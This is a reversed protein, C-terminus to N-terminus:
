QWTIIGRSFCFVRFFLHHSFLSVVKQINPNQKAGCSPDLSHFHTNLISLFLLINTFASAFINNVKSIVMPLSRPLLFFIWIGSSPLRRHFGSAYCILDDPMQFPQRWATARRGCLKVGSQRYLQATWTREADGFMSLFLSVFFVFIINLTVLRTVRAARSPLPRTFKLFRLESPASAAAPASAERPTGFVILALAGRAGAPGRGLRTDWCGLNRDKALM